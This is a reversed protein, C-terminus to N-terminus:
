QSHLRRCNRRASDERLINLHRVSNGYSLTVLKHNIHLVNLVIRFLPLRWLVKYWLTEIWSAGEVDPWIALFTVRESEGWENTSLADAKSLGEGFDYCLEHDGSEQRAQVKVEDILVDLSALFRLDEQVEVDIVIGDNHHRDLSSVELISHRM